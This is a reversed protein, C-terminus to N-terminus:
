MSVIEPVIAMAPIQMVVTPTHLKKLKAMEAEAKAEEEREHEEKIESM